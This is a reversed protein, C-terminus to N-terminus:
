NIYDERNYEDDSQFVINNEFVNLLDFKRGKGDIGLDVVNITEVTKVFKPVEGFMNKNLRTEIFDKWSKCVQKCQPISCSPLQILIKEQLELPFSSWNMM